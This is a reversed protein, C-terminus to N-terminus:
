ILDEGKKDRPVSAWAKIVTQLRELQKPDGLYFAEWRGGLNRFAVRIMDYDEAKIKFSDAFMHQILQKIVRNAFIKPPKPTDNM